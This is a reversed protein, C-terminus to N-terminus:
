QPNAKFEKIIALYLATKTRTGRQALKIVHKAVLETMKDNRDKLGLAKCAEAFADGMVAVTEPDFAQGRLFPTIPM